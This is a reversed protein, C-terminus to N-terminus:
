KVVVKKGNNIYIGKKVPISDGVKIGSPTYWDGEGFMEESLNSITTPVDDDGFNLVFTRAPNGDDFQFYARCAKLTRDVGTHKLENNGTMYYIDTDAATIPFADYYGIFKVQDNDYSLAYGAADSLIVNAFEPNSIDSGGDWKILYPVGAYIPYEDFTLNITTGSVSAASLTKATANALTSNDLDDIDFPLCITNWNGDKFLTRDALTVHALRGVYRSLLRSNDTAANGLTLLAFEGIDSWDSTAGGKVSQIQYDYGNNTALGDITATTGTVAMEQWAGAPTTPSFIGFDDIFISAYKDSATAKFAVYKVGAALEENYLTYTSLPADIPDSWTFADADNTTTSFGVQFTNATSNGFYYFEVRAGSEYAPLEPSIITEENTSNWGMVLFFNDNAGVNYIPDALGYIFVDYTWGDAIQDNFDNFYYTNRSEATRYRVNYSDGEGTWTFTAGDAALDAEIDYPVPNSTITRFDTAVWKSEGSESGTYVSQVQVEYKTESSLGNLVYPSTVDTLTVDWTDDTPDGVFIDDILLAFADSSVCNIALQITQGVYASLDYSFETWDVPVEVYSANDGALYSSFTGSGDYVGVKIRELGYQDTASRAWLSFISGSEITIAPLIFYDDNATIGANTDPIADMFVGMTNGSHAAWQNNDSFAIVSGIYNSNPMSYGNIGYTQLGDGDYTTCPSFEDVAFAEATEFDYNFGRAARYRLNYSDATGTWSITASSSKVNNAAVNTPAPFAVDTTFTIEESWKEAEDTDPRVKVIYTTEPTLGELVFPNEKASEEVFDKGEVKCAVVWADAAPNSNETWSLTATTATINSAALDSPARWPSVKCDVTYTALVDGTKMSTTGTGETILEENIDYIKWSAEVPYSGKVWQFEIERGNPVDAYLTNTEEVNNTEGDLNENTYTGIVIGTLVDVIKIANGNWGDGYSDTLELKIQCMDDSIDTAFSVANTWESVDSGKKARVKVEYERALELGTLTYPNTVNETVIGNVDIDFATADSTWSVTAETGGRYDVTLDTPKECAPKLEFVVNDVHINNDTNSVTSEAYFAVNVNQGAYAALDFSVYHTSPTLDNLVYTSGANDWQRLITWTAMNDTSALVVFKDDDGSTDPNAATGSYATYAVDFALRANDEVPIAPTVIWRKSTSYINAYINNGDLVGNATGNTWGSTASALATGNMVDSLLGTYLSWGAPIGSGSFDQSYPFSAATTFNKSVYAECNYVQVNYTTLGELGTLEFTPTGSATVETYDTDSAKKYKVTWSTEQYGPTWSLTASSGTVNTIQLDSPAACPNATKFTISKFNSTSGGCDTQVGVSYTTNEDLGTLTYTKATLGEVLTYDADTSAKYHLNWKDGDSEWTVVAGETTINGVTISTPADCGTSPPDYTFTTKPIFGTQSSGTVNDLSTGNSGSWSAGTNGTQGYFKISKYGADTTNEIGILLNGGGYTYPSDFTITMSGGDGETVIDLTGQYVITGSAKPEFATMQTYDVEMLYVDVTSVTTYPVNSNTTYFKMSNITGGNMVDLDAAPIVYQSRTFDDFYYIYAPINQSTATGEYVTLTEQGRALGVISLLLMMTLFLKSKM